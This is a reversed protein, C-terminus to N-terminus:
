FAGLITVQKDSGEHDRPFSRHHTRDTVLGDNAALATLCQECWGDDMAGPIVLYGCLDWAWRETAEEQAEASLVLPPPALAGTANVHQQSPVVSDDKGGSGNM